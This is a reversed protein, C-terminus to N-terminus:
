YRHDLKVAYRLREVPVYKGQLVDAKGNGGARYAGQETM